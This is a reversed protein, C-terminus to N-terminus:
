SSYISILNSHKQGYYLMGDRFRLRYAILDRVHSCKTSAAHSLPFIETRYVSGKYQTKLRNSQQQTNQAAEAYYVIIIFSLSVKEVFRKWWLGSAGM